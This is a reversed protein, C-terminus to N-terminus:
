KVLIMKKVSTFEGATLKYFYLGSPYGSANWVATYKGPQIRGSVLRSVERGLVDYVILSVNVPKAIDYNITTSPNFPNPFNNHLSFKEPIGDNNISGTLDDTTFTYVNSWEGDPGNPNNSRVHWTYVTSPSLSNTLQYNNITLDSASAILTFGNYIEIDFQTFDTLNEWSFVPNLQVNNANDAPEILAPSPPANFRQLVELWHANDDGQFNEINWEQNAGRNRRWDWLAFHWGWDVCPQLMDAIFQPGGNQPLYMGGEGLIFPHGSKDQFDKVKGYITERIFDANYLQPNLYTLNFYVGPYTVSFPAKAKTFENPQYMHAEYILYQDVFEYPPFLEPTSYAFNQIIL